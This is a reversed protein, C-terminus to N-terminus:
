LESIEGYSAGAAESGILVHGSHEVFIEPVLQDQIEGVNDEYFPCLFNKEELEHAIRSPAYIPVM